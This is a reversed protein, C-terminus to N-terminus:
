GQPKFRGHNGYQKLLRVHAHECVCVPRCPRPRYNHSERKPTQNKASPISVLNDGRPRLCSHSTTSLILYNNKARSCHIPLARVLPFPPHSQGGGYLAMRGTRAYNHKDRGVREVIQQAMIDGTAFLVQPLKPLAEDSQSPSRQALTPWKGSNHHEPNSGASPSSADPVQEM